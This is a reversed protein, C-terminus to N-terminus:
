EESANKCQTMADMVSLGQKRLQKYRRRQAKAKAKADM